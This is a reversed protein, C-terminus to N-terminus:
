KNQKLHGANLVSQIQPLIEGSIADSIARQIKLTSDFYKLGLKPTVGEEVQSTSPGARAEDEPEDM